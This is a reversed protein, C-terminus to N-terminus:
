NSRRSSIMRYLLPRYYTVITSVELQQCALALALALLPGRDAVRVRRTDRRCSKVVLAWLRRSMVETAMGTKLLFFSVTPGSDIAEKQPHTRTSGRHDSVRTHTTGIEGLQGVADQQAHNARVDRQHLHHLECGSVHYIWVCMCACVRVCVTLIEFYFGM